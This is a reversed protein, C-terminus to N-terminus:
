LELVVKEDEVPVRADVGLYDHLRQALFTSSRTEGLTVYVRKLQGASPEVLAILHDMDKHASYGGIHAIRANVRIKDGFITVEKMGEQLQRGLSGVVQYGALLVTNHRDSLYRREHHVVRGGNSMGSGAIIIKPGAVDNIGMSEEKSPTFTLRPFRFIDDGSKIQSQAGTNYYREYKRYIETVRIALPSDMFVPVSPIRKQEVLNNIEFLLDQTRELSFSPIVLTGGQAITEEIVAELLQTRDDREEHNRDGYVSEMVLYDPAPLPETDKLIPAPSNGLDGTVVLTKGGRTFTVMASGLIHGSDYFQVVIEGPMHIDEHYEHGEWLSMAMEIDEEEYLLPVKTKKQDMRLVSLSDKLMEHALDKTPFTSYIRGRFGDRVLKPIRGVHDIHSHTVFLAKVSAPDYSFTNANKETCMTSGQFFGCDVLMKTGTISDTILFNAGTVSGAGGAFQLELSSSM